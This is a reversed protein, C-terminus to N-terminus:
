PTGGGGKQYQMPLLGNAMSLISDYLPESKNLRGQMTKILAQMSPDTTASTLSDPADNNSVMGGVTSVGSLGLAAWEQPSLGLWGAAGAGAGGGGAAGAGAAGAAGAAAGAGLGTGSASVGAAYPTIAWPAGGAVPPLTGTGASAGSMAAGTAGLATAGGFFSILGLIAARRRQKQYEAWQEPTIQGNMVSPAYPDMTGETQTRSNTLGTDPDVDGFDPM